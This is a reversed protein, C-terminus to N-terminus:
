GEEERASGSVPGTQRAARRCADCATAVRKIRPYHMLWAVVIVIQIKNNKHDDM